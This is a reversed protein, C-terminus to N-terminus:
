YDKSKEFTMKTRSCPGLYEWRKALNIFNCYLYRSNYKSQLDDIYGKLIEYYAVVIYFFFDRLYEEDAINFRIDQGMQEFFELIIIISDKPNEDNTKKLLNIVKAQVEVMAAQIKEIEEKNKGKRVKNLLSDVSEIVSKNEEKSPCLENKFTVEYTDKKLKRLLKLHKKLEPSYWQAVYASSKNFKEQHYQSHSTKANYFLGVIVGYLGIVEIVKIEYNIKINGIASNSIIKNEHLSRTGFFLL